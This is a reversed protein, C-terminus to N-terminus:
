GTKQCDFFFVGKFRRPESLITLREGSAREVIQSVKPKNGEMLYCTFQEDTTITPASESPSSKPNLIAEIQHQVITESVGQGPISSRPATEFINVKESVENRFAGTLM